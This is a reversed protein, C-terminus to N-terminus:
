HDVSGVSGHCRSPRACPVKRCLNLKNMPFKSCSAMTKPSRASIRGLAEAVARLFIFM